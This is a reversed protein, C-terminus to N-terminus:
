NTEKVVLVSKEAEKGWLGGHVLLLKESNVFFFVIIINIYVL